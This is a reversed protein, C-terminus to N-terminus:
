LNLFAVEQLYAYVCVTSLFLKKAAKRLKFQFCNKRTSRCAHMCTRICQRSIDEVNATLPKSHLKSSRMYGDITSM